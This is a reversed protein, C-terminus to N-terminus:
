SDEQHEYYPSFDSQSWRSVEFSRSRWWVFLPYVSILFIAWFFNSWTMVNRKVVVEYVTEVPQGSSAELNLHYKGSPVSSLILRNIPSGETWPGESDYGSYVEVGQEFEITQGNDDNVLDGQVELWNNQQRSRLQVEVNGVGNKLEFQSSVKTREVDNPKFDYLSSHVTESKLFLGSAVQLGFLIAFFIGWYKLVETVNHKATSPQNPAVGSQLPMPSAIAFASKIDGADVYVGLSWIVESDNQELSLMEPPSIFDEVTVREGQKVQWYFEGAVYTVKASGKHFLYYNRNLYSATRYDNKTPKSKTTIVYNWHGDFETLWRFGKFPNFLLYESWCYVESSDTREVYGIAEWLTGHLKGRSGLPIVQERKKLKLAIDIVKYNENSSDIIAACSGCVAVITQGVARVVVSAGCAPCSFTKVSGPRQVSEIKIEDGAM